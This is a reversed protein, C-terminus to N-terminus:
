FQECSAAPQHMAKLLLCHESAMPFTLSGVPSSLLGTGKNCPQPSKPSPQFRFSINGSRLVSGRKSDHRKAPLRPKRRYGVQRDKTSAWCAKLTLPLVVSHLSVPLLLPQLPLSVIRSLLLCDCKSLCCCCWYSQWHHMLDIQRKSGDNRDWGSFVTQFVAIAEM